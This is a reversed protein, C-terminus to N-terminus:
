KFKGGGKFKLGGKLKISPSSVAEATFSGSASSSCSPEDDCVFAYYNQSGVDGSQVTYTCTIPDTLDYDDKNSCWEGGDCSPSAGVTIADTKCCSSLGDTWQYLWYNQNSISEAPSPFDLTFWNGCGSGDAYNGENTVDVKIGDVGDEYIAFQADWAWPCGTDCTLYVSISSLTGSGGSGYKSGTIIDVSGGTGGIEDYGFTPDIKVPYVADDLFEQPIEISLIGKEEDINLEGWVWNGVDDIIKPRYIHFAKGARYNKGGMKSYDGTKSEHYVAYSGVVNEPRYIIIEGKKNKCETETCIVGPRHKEENLPPQYYFKLGQTQINFEIKNLSPKEKLITEWELGGDSNIKSKHKKGESDTGIFQSPGVPYIHHEKRDGKWKVKGNDLELGKETTTPFSISFYVEGDWKNLKAYPKSDKKGIEIVENDLTKFAYKGSKTKKVKLKELNDEKFKEKAGGASGYVLLYVPELTDLLRSGTIQWTSKALLTTKADLIIKIPDAQYSNHKIDIYAEALEPNLERKHQQIDYLTELPEKRVDDKNISLLNRNNIVGKIEKFEAQNNKSVPILYFGKKQESKNELKFALQYNDKNLKTALVKFSEDPSNLNQEILFPSKLLSIIEERAKLKEELELTKLFGEQQLFSLEEKSYIKLENLQKVPSYKESDWIGLIIFSIILLTILIIILPFYKKVTM